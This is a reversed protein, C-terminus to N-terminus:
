QLARDTFGRKDLKVMVDACSVSLGNSLMVHEVNGNSGIHLVCLEGDLLLQWERQRLVRTACGPASPGSDAEPDALVILDRAGSRLTIELAVDSDSAPVGEVVTMPVCRIGVIGATGDYPEIVSVFTSTLPASDSQRRVMLRPIWALYENM